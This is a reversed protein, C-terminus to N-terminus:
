SPYLPWIAQIETGQDPETKITLGGGSLYARENMSLLGLGHKDASERLKFGQGNDKIKLCLFQQNRCTLEIILKSANAHRLCNTIAEQAIRLCASQVENNLTPLQRSINIDFEIASHQQVQELYARLSRQLGLEHLHRPHFGNIIQRISAITDDLLHIPTTLAEKLLEQSLPRNLINHLALKIGILSQGLEDHLERALTAQHQDLYTLLHRALRQYRREAEHLNTIQNHLNLSTEAIAIVGQEGNDLICPAQMVFFYRQNCLLEMCNYEFVTANLQEFVISDAQRTKESNEFCLLESFHKGIIAKGDNFYNNFTPNSWYFTGDRQRVAIAIPLANLWTYASTTTGSQLRYLQYGQESLEQQYLWFTHNGVSVLQTTNTNTDALGTLRTALSSGLPLDQATLPACYHGYVITGQADCVLVTDPLTATLASFLAPWDSSTFM